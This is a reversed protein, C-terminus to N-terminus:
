DKDAEKRIPFVERTTQSDDDYQELIFSEQLFLSTFKYLANILYKDRVDNKYNASYRGSKGNIRYRGDPQKHVEGAIRAPAAAILTPHGHDQGIHLTGEKSILWILIQDGEPDFMTDLKQVESSYIFEVSPTQKVEQAVVENEDLRVPPRLPGFINGLTTLYTKSHISITRLTSYYFSKEIDTTTRFPEDLTNYAKTIIQIIQAASDHHEVVSLLENGLPIDTTDYILDFSHTSGSDDKLFFSCSWIYNPWNELVVEKKNKIIPNILYDKKLERSQCLKIKYVVDFNIRLETNLADKIVESLTLCTGNVLIYPIRVKHYNCTKVSDLSIVDETGHEEVKLEYHFNLQQTKNQDSTFGTKVLRAKVYPGIRDDHIYLTNLEGGTLCYGLITVAHDGEYVYDKGVKKYVTVGALIPIESDLHDQMYHNIHDLSLSNETNINFDHQKLKFSELAKLIQESSLGENPFGNISFSESGIANSTIESPSPVSKYHFNKTAHMLSWLATTACAAVVKDQEQFAISNVELDIGFLNSTHTKELYHRNENKGYHKLCTRGLFTVPLPKIVSFGQYHEKLENLKTQDGNEIWELFDDHSFNLSFFHLRACKTSYNNFCTAYFKQHDNLYDKDIYSTECLVTQTNSHNLYNILYQVQRKQSIDPFQAGFCEKILLSISRKDFKSVFFPILNPVRCEM